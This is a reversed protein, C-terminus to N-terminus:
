RAAGFRRRAWGRCSEALTRERPQSLADAATLSVVRDLWQDPGQGRRVALRLTSPHVKAVDADSPLRTPRSGTLREAVEGLLAADPAGVVLRLGAARVLDRPLYLAPSQSVGVVSRGRVAAAAVDDNGVHPKHSKESGNRRFELLVDGGSNRGFRERRGVRRPATEALFDARWADAIPKVWEAGPVEVISMQDAAATTMAAALARALLLAAAADAPDVSDSTPEAEVEAFDLVDLCDLGETGSAAQEPPASAAAGKADTDNTDPM